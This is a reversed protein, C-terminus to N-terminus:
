KQPQLIQELEDLLQQGLTLAALMDQLHQHWRLIIDCVLYGALDHTQPEAEGGGRGGHVGLGAPDGPSGGGRGLSEACLGFLRVIIAEGEAARLRVREPATM